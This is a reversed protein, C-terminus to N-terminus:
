SAKSSRFNNRLQSVRKVCAEKSKGAVAAAVKEWRLPADKPFAKLANLLAIDEGNSWIEDGNISGVSEGFESSAEESRKDVAKRQRLFQGFSDVPKKEAMSKAERIVSEVGHRGKFAEAIMEWRGPAGVPHKVIMKKLIEFDEESWESESSRSDKEPASVVEIKPKDSVIPPVSGAIPVASSPPFLDKSRRARKKPEDREEVPELIEGIGVRFDGGTISIPAFPGILLSIATWALFAALIQSRGSIAISGISLVISAVACVSAHLKDVTSKSSEQSSITATARSRSIAFRPRSEEDIFEM